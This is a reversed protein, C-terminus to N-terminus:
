CLGARNSQPGAFVPAPLAATRRRRSYGQPRGQGQSKGLNDMIVVDGPRLTPVLFQEVYAQFSQGNIPGDIVCPAEIRDCRLGALFTQTRWQGHPARGILRKGRPAWGRLPAM